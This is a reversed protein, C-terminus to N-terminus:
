DELECDYPRDPASPRCGAASIEWGESSEALFLTGGDRLSVSASTVYVSTYAGEGGAALDLDLIAEGCPRAEQQELASATPESLEACAGGGDRSDLAAQFREVVTVADDSRDGCGACLCALALLAVTTLIPV